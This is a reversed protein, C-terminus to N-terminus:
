PEGGPATPELLLLALLAARGSMTDILVHEDARHAGDGVAGLGDLTATHQSTLNGDSAGGVVALELDIGLESALRQAREALRENADNREMPPRGFRGEVEIAVEPNVAALSRLAKDVAAAQAATYVRVDVQASAEPAVVNPRLGGDITGVNVTVGADPDNLAFLHQIQHTLELIASAGSEPDLGAHAARGKAKVQYRGVGKRGVKVAGDLGYAGELVFARVASRALADIWRRSDPSGIEEDSNVFVAIRAPASCGLVDIAHLAALLQVLGAKMDFSGPGSFRAGDVTPPRETTTGLPWVTDVHGVVLQHALPSREEPRVFLHDGTTRGRVRRTAYGLREFHGAFLDLVPGQTDPASSPSELAVADHLIAMMDHRWDEIAQLVRSPDPSSM